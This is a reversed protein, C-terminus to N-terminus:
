LFSALPFAGNQLRMASERSPMLDLSAVPLGGATDLCALHGVCIGLHGCFYWGGGGRGGIGGLCSERSQGVLFYEFLYPLYISPSETQLPGVM